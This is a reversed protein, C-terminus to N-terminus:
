CVEHTVVWSGAGTHAYGRASAKSLLLPPPPPSSRRYDELHLPASSPARTCNLCLLCEQPQRHSQICVCVYVCMCVCVCVCVCVCKPV